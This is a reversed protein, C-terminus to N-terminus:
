APKVHLEKIKLTGADVSVDAVLSIVPDLPGPLDFTVKAEIKAGAHLQQLLAGVISSNVQNLISM